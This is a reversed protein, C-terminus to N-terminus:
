FMEPLWFGGHTVEHLASCDEFSSPGESSNQLSLGEVPGDTTLPALNISYVPHPLVMAGHKTFQWQVFLSQYALANDHLLVWDKAAWM